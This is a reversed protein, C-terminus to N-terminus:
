KLGLKKLRKHIAQDSVGITDAMTTIPVVGFNERLYPEWIQWDVKGTLQGACKNSCTKNYSPKVKGCVPCPKKAKIYLMDDPILKEDFQQYDEPIQVLDEHVERHCNACLMVCKKLEEAIYEWKRPRGMVTGFHFDKDESNIHHFELARNCKNYGCLACSGGFAAVMKNKTNTRWKRVGDAHKSM